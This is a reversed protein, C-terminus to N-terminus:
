FTDCTEAVFLNRMAKRLAEKAPPLMATGFTSVHDHDLFYKEKLMALVAEYAEDGRREAYHCDPQSCAM